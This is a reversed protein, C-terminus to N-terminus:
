PCSLRAGPEGIGAASFKLRKLRNHASLLDRGISLMFHCVKLYLGWSIQLDWITICRQSPTVDDMCVLM